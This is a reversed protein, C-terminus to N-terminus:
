PSPFGNLILIMMQGHVMPFPPYLKGTSEIYRIEYPLGNLNGIMQGLMGGRIKDIIIEAPIEIFPFQEKKDPKVYHASVQLYSLIM